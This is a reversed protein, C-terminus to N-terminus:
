PRTQTPEEKLYSSLLEVIVEDVPLQRAVSLEILSALTEEGLGLLDIEVAQMKKLLVAGSADLEVEFKDGQSIGLTNMEEQTFQVFYEERKQVRTTM